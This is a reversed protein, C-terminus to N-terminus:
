LLDNWDVGETPLAVDTFETNTCLIAYKLGRGGHPPRGKQDITTFAILNSNWDVGETPLAVAFIYLYVINRKYM